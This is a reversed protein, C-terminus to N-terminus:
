HKNEKRKSRKSRENHTRYIQLSEITSNVHFNALYPLISTLPKNTHSRKKKKRKRREEKNGKM